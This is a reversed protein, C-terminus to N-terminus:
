TDLLSKVLLTPDPGQGGALDQLLQEAQTWAVVDVETDASLVTVAGATCIVVPTVRFGETRGSFQLRDAFTFARRDPRGLGVKGGAGTWAGKENVAIEGSWHLTNIVLLRGPAGVVADVHMFGLTPRIVATVTDPLRQLLGVLRKLGEGEEMELQRRGADSMRAKLSGLLSRAGAAPMTGLVHAM